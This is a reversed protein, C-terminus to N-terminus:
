KEPKPHCSDLWAQFSGTDIKCLLGGLMHALITGTLSLAISIVGFAIKGPAGFFYQIGIFISCWSFFMFYIFSFVDARRWRQSGFMLTAIPNQRGAYHAYGSTKGMEIGLYFCALGLIFLALDLM